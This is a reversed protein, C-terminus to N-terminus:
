NAPSSPSDNPRRNATALERPRDRKVHWKTYKRKIVRPNARTGAPPTSGAWSDAGPLHAM